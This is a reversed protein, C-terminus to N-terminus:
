ELIVDGLYSIKWAKEIRPVEAEIWGGVGGEDDGVRVAVEGEREERESAIPHEETDEEDEGGEDIAEDDDGGNRLVLGLGLVVHQQHTRLLVQHHPQDVYRGNHVRVAVM